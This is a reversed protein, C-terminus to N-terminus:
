GEIQPLAAGLGIDLAMAAGARAGPTLHGYRDVTTKISEHGLHAQVTPLPVNGAIMWSAATHRLSHVRPRKGLREGGKAPILWPKGKLPDFKASRSRTRASVYVEGNAAAVAPQWVYEHFHGSGRWPVGSPTTFIFDDPELERTHSDLIQAVRPGVDITRRSRPSKPPGLVIKDGEKWARVITLTGRDRNWDKAQLATAEGWRLGTGALLTVLDQETPRVHAILRAFEDQTLFVMEEQIGSKIRVGEAVNNAIKGRKVAKRLVASLFGQKNAITKASAGAKRMDNVWRAVAEETLAEAPLHAFGALDREVYGRYRERTGDTVGTLTEIHAECLEAVTPSEKANGTRLNIVELAATVGIRDMLKAAKTASEYTDHTQFHQEGNLYYIVQHGVTGDKRPRSRVTAM